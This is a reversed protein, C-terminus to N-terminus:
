FDWQIEDDGGDGSDTAALATLGPYNGGPQLLRDSIPLNNLQYVIQNTSNRRYLEEFLKLKKDDIDMNRGWYKFMSKWTDKDHNGEGWVADALDIDYIDPNFGPHSNPRSLVM